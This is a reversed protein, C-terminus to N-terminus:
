FIPCKQLLLELGHPCQFQATYATVGATALYCSLGMLANFCKQEKVKRFVGDYCSLGMLANFCYHSIICLVINPLLELGHPCQFLYQNQYLGAANYLLLELGHPCQFM